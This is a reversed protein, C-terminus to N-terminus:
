FILLCKEGFAVYVFFDSHFFNIRPVFVCDVAKVSVALCSVMSVAYPLLGRNFACEYNCVIALLSNGYLFCKHKRILFPNFLKNKAWFCM